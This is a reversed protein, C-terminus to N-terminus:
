QRSMTTLCDQVWRDIPTFSLDLTRVDSQTVLSSSGDCYVLKMMEGPMEERHVIWKQGNRTRMLVPDTDCITGSDEPRRRGALDFLVDTRSMPADVSALVIQNKQFKPKKRMRKRTGKKAFRLFLDPCRERFDRLNEEDASVIEQMKGCISYLLRQKMHLIEDNMAKMLREQERDISAMEQDLRLQIYKTAEPSLEPLSEPQSAVDM